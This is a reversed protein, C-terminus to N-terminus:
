ISKIKKFFSMNQDNGEKLYIIYKKGDIIIEKVKERYNCSYSLMTVAHREKILETAIWYLRTGGM